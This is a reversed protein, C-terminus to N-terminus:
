GHCYGFSLYILNEIRTVEETLDAVYPYDNINYRTIKHIRHSTKIVQIITEADSNLTM